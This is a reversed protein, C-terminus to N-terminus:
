QRAGTRRSAARLGLAAGTLWVVHFALLVREALGLLVPSRGAFAPSLCAFFVVLTIATGRALWRLSSGLAADETIRAIRASLSLAALPFALFAVMAASMHAMGSISPPQSWQGFPDPAFLGGVVAGAGWAALMWLGFSAGDTRQIAWALALSGLGWAVLTAGLIWGYAGNLYYSVAVDAPNFQPQMVHMLLAGAVFLATGALCAEALRVTSPDRRARTSASEISGSTM